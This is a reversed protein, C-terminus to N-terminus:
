TLMVAHPVTKRTHPFHVSIGHEIYTAPWVSSSIGQSRRPMLRARRLMIRVRSEPPRQAAIAAARRVEACYDAAGAEEQRRPASRVSANAEASFQKGSM